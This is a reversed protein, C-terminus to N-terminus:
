QLVFSMTQWSVSPHVSLVSVLGVDLLTLQRVFCWILRVSNELRYSSSCLNSQVELLIKERDRLLNLNKKGIYYDTQLLSFRFVNHIISNLLFEFISVTEQHYKGRQKVPLLSESYNSSPSAFASVVLYLVLDDCPM